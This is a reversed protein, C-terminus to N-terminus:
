VGNFYFIMLILLTTTRIKTIDHSFWCYKGTVRMKFKETKAWELEVVPPGLEFNKQSRKKEGKHPRETHRTIDTYRSM